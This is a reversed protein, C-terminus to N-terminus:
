IAYSAVSTPSSSRGSESDTESEYASDVVEEPSFSLDAGYTLLLDLIVGNTWGFGEQVEYEGGGAVGNVCKSAVNYKEFMRGGSSIWMDYNKRVWKGAIRKALEQQGTARLGQIVVWTTPAWANPFDWQQGSAILSSPLGGPYSLVGTSCLYSVVKSPDFGSFFFL